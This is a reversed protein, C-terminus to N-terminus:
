LELAIICATCFARLEAFFCHYKMIHTSDLKEFKECVVAQSCSQGQIVIYENKPNYAELIIQVAM